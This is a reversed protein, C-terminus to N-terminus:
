KNGKRKSQKTRKRRHGHQDGGKALGGAFAACCERSCFPDRIFWEVPVYRKKPIPPRPKGCVVCLGDERPLPDKKM